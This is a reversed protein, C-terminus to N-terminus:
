LYEQLIVRYAPCYRQAYIESHHVAPYGKMSQIFEDMTARPFSGLRTAVGWYNELTQKDGHFENATRVFATLLTEPDGGYEIFPQLHVRVMKGDASIPDIMPEATSKGMELLEQKLWAQVSELNGVVHESGLAAQHILKYVDQIQMEPYRALHSRLISEFM